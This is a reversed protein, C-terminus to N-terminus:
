EQFGRILEVARDALMELSGPKPRFSNYFLHADEVEYGGEEYAQRTPIYGFAANAYGVVFIPKHSRQRVAATFRSFLEGNVALVIVPGLDIAFLEIEVSKGRGSKVLAIQTERWKEIADRFPKAWATNAFADIRGADRATRYRGAGDM